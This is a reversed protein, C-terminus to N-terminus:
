FKLIWLNEISLRFKNKAIIEGRLMFKHQKVTYM